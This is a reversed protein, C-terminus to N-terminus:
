FQKHNKTQLDNNLPFKITFTTDGPKSEINFRANYPKLFRAVKQIGSEISKIPTESSSNLIMLINEKVDTEIGCGTDHFTVIISYNDCNITIDLKKEDATALANMCNDIIEIFSNSFHIYNGDIPPLSDTITYKKEINHKFFMHAQLFELEDKMISDIRLPQIKRSEANISKKMANKVMEAVKNSNELILSIDKFCKDVIEDNNESSIKNMFKNLRIQLMEARGIIASLPTNINHAIGKICSGMFALNNKQDEDLDRIM